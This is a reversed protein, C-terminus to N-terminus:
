MASKSLFDEVKRKDRCFGSLDLSIQAKIINSNRIKVEKVTTFRRIYRKWIESRNEVPDDSIADSEGVCDETCDFERKYAIRKVETPELLTYKEFLLNLDASYTNTYNFQYMSEFIFFKKTDKSYVINKVNNSKTSSKIFDMIDIEHESILKTGSMSRSNNQTERSRYTNEHGIDFYFSKLLERREDVKVDQIRAAEELRIGGKIPPLYYYINSILAKKPRLGNCFESEFSDDSKSFTFPSTTSCGFIVSLVFLSLIKSM